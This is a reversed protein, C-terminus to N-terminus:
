TTMMGSIHWGPTGGVSTDGSKNGGGGGVVRLIHIYQARWQHKVEEGRCRIVQKHGVDKQNGQRTWIQVKVFCSIVTAVAPTNKLFKIGLFTWWFLTKCIGGAFTSSKKCAISSLFPSFTWSKSCFYLTSITSNMFVPLNHKRTSEHQFVMKHLINNQYRWFHLFNVLIFEKRITQETAIPVLAIHFASANKM